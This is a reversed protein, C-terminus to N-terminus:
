KFYKKADVPAKRKAKTDTERPKDKKVPPATKKHSTTKSKPKPMPEDPNIIKIMDPRNLKMQAKGKYISIVGTIALHKGRYLDAPEGKEFAPLDSKFTVLYFESNEFNIFNTGSRSKRVESVTGRVTIKQGSKAVIAATDSAKFTPLEDAARTLLPFSTFLLCSSLLIM